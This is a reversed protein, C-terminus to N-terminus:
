RLDLSGLIRNWTPGLGDFADSAALLRAVTMTDGQRILVDAGRAVVPISHPAALAPDAVYVYDVRVADKGRVKLPEINLVRYALLDQVAMDSWKLAFDGLSQAKTSISTVPMQLLSFRAPFLGSDFPEGVNLLEDGGQKDLAIWAAPYSASINAGTYATTRSLVITRAILGIALLVAVLVWVLWEPEEARFLSRRMKLTAATM